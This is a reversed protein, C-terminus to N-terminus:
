HWTRRRTTLAPREVIVVIITINKDRDAPQGVTQLVPKSLSAAVILVMSSHSTISHAVRFKTVSEFIRKQVRAEHDTAAKWRGLGDIEAVANPMPLSPDNSIVGELVFGKSTEASMLKPHYGTSAARAWVQSSSRRV